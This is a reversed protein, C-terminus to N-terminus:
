RGDPRMVVEGPGAVWAGAAAIVSAALGALAVRTESENLEGTAIWSVLVGGITAVAPFVFALIAKPSIGKTVMAEKGWIAKLEYIQALTLPRNSTAHLYTGPRLISGMNPHRTMRLKAMGCFQALAVWDKKGVASSQVDTGDQTSPVRVSLTLGHRVLYFSSVATGWRTTWEPALSTAIRLQCDELAKARVSPYCAAQLAREQLKLCFPDSRRQTRCVCSTCRTRSRAKEHLRRM